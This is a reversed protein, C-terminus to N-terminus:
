SERLRYGISHVTEILDRLSGLKKRITRVHADVSRDTAVASEGRTAALIQDRTYVRGPSRALLLLIKFETATLDVTEGGGMVRHRSADIRLDGHAIVGGEDVEGRGIRRLVSQVRAILEKRGFPKTVYDDAGLGLGLVIDSEEGKATVMVVAVEKTEDDSKLRRCVELGDLGPLMLDLVVLDPLTRKVENLGRLGDGVSSVTFGERSLTYELIERIDEEDEIVLIKAGNM